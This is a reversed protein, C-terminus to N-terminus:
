PLLFVGLPTLLVLDAAARLITPAFPHQRANLLVLAMSGAAATAMLTAIHHQSFLLFMGAGLLTITALFIGARAIGPLHRSGASEWVEIAHCNLWALAAFTLFVPLFALRGSPIRSWTPLICATTFILGVLLEKPIRPIRLAHRLRPLPFSGPAHVSSFYALAAAALLSNRQRAAAPMDRLVLALAAIAATMAMPLLLRRHQWHFLHRPQLNQGSAPQRQAKVVDLLRDGVYFAWASLGLVLPLWFPLAVEASHAFALCWVIAVSPADLSTLHWLSLLKAPHLRPTNEPASLRASPKAPSLAM